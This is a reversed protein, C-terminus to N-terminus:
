PQVRPHRDDRAADWTVRGASVTMLAKVSDLAALPVALPNDSWVVFDAPGGVVLTPEGAAGAPNFWRSQLRYAFARRLSDPVEGAAAYRRVLAAEYSALAASPRTFYDSGDALLAGLGVLRSWAYVRPENAAGVRVAGFPPDDAPGSNFNSQMSLVVGMRVAREFDGESAYSFHEIRLRRPALGPHTALVREYADLVRAVAVDGIAHTAVGLGADVARGALTAIEDVTMRPVGRTAPDDAYPHTLAAGRSGLAGDAFLKLHTIRVRPSVEWARAPAALLSDALASPAPILLNVQIPLPAISDTRRLLALYRGLPANLAVLGPMPLVGADYVRTVGRAALAEAALRFAAVVDSDAVGPVQVVVAENARELLLGSPSGDARRGIAGGPPDPTRADIGAVSLARSNAWGAHGDSRGLYAPNVPAAVDLTDRGPMARMGWAAHNWGAGLVWAGPASAGARERVKEWAEGLSKASSLDVFLREGDRDNLLTVGVNFLHVHHDVLAPAFYAGPLSVTRAGRARRDGALMSDGIAVIRGDRVLIARPSAPVSDFTLVAEGLFLTAGDQRRSAAPGCAFPLALVVVLGAKRAMRAFPLNPMMVALAQQGFARRAIRRTSRWAM